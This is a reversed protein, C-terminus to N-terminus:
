IDMVVQARWGNETMEVQFLHLTVAKVDVVLPHRHPDLHEGGALADVFYRGGSWEVKASVVRLLLQRADKLFILENLFVFLLMDLAENELHFETQEMARVTSPEAVMVNLLADAAAIFLEELSEGTAEFAVDAIAIEELFRYPM